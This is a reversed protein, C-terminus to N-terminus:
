NGGKFALFQAMYVFRENDQDFNFLGYGPNFEGPEAYVLDDFSDIRTANYGYRQQILKLLSELINESWPDESIILYVDFGNMLMNIIKFFEFFIVDNNLIWSAYLQDFEYETSAGLNNPPIIRLREYGEIFSTLNYVVCQSQINLHNGYLLM